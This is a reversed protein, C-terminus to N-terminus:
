TTAPIAKGTEIAKRVAADFRRDRLSRTLYQRLQAPDNSQLQERAGALWRSEGEGLGIVGGVRRSGAHSRGVIDQAIQQATRGLARGSQVVARVAAQQAQQIGSVVEDTVRAIADIAAPRRPNFPPVRPVAPRPSPPTGEPTWVPPRTSPGVFGPVIPRAPTVVLRGGETPDIAAAIARGLASRPISEMEAQGAALFARRMAETFAVFGLLGVMLAVIGEYDDQQVLRRVESVTVGQAIEDVQAIFASEIIAATTDALMNYDRENMGCHDGLWLPRLADGA